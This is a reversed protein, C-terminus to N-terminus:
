STYLLTSPPTTLIMQNENEWRTLVRSYLLTDEEISPSFASEGTNIYEFVVSENPGIQPWVFYQIRSVLNLTVLTNDTDTFYITVRVAHFDTVTTNGINTVNLLILTYFPHEEPTGPMFDQSYNAVAWAKLGNVIIIEPEEGPPESPPPVPPDSFLSNLLVGVVVLGIVVVLIVGIASTKRATMVKRSFRM